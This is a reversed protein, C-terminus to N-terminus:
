PLKLRYFRTGNTPNVILTKNTGVTQIGVAVNSWNVSNLGNTNQQLV